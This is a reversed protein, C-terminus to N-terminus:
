LIVCSARTVRYGDCMVYTDCPLWMTRGTAGRESQRTPLGARGMCTALVARRLWEYVLHLLLCYLNRAFKREDTTVIM